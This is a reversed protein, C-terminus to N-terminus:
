AGDGGGDLVARWHRVAAESVPHAWDQGFRAARGVHYREIGAARLPAVYDLTMGGGALWRVRETQWDVRGCLLELGASLDGRIGGSLVCDIGPLALAMEWERRMDAAHDFAHHLTWPCPAVAAILMEIAGRDLSGAGDLFGFVFQDAGERRLAAAERCLLEVEEETAGFGGNSRLMVRLPLGVAARIAAFIEVEPTLGGVGIERVLELRDAGGREAARADEVGMAIVELLVM